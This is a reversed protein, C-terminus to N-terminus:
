PVAANTEDLAEDRHRRNTLRVLPEDGISSKISQEPAPRTRWHAEVMTTSLIEEHEENERGHLAQRERRM